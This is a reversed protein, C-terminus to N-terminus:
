LLVELYNRIKKEVGLARAYGLLKQVDREGSRVYQKMAPNVVQMDVVRRGRVIDCLARELDYASVENGYPTRITTLGLGLVEDACTRVEIGAERAKTAGYSRPFTMTLQFPARDTYGHLYLATEDSLIGRPFRLQAALFEDEWADMLRYVGRQVRELEGAKVMDSIRARPIGVGVVQATTVLGGSSEALDVIAQVDMVEENDM